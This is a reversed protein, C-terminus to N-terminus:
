RSEMTYVTIDSCGGPRSADVSDEAPHRKVPRAFEMAAGRLPVAPTTYLVVLPPAIHNVSITLDCRM